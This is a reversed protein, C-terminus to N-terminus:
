FRTPKKKIVNTDGSNAIGILMIIIIIIIMMIEM